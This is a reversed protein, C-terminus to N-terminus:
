KGHVHQWPWPEPLWVIAHHWCSSLFLGATSSVQKFAISGNKEVDLLGFIDESLNCVKLRLVGNLGTWKLWIVGPGKVQQLEAAKMLLMIDGYSHSTQVVNLASAMARGIKIEKGCEKKISTLIQQCIDCVVITAIEKPAPIGKRGIWQYYGFSFLILRACFGTVRMIRSRWKPMPNQKDKWGELAIRTAVYGVALCAGFLVLSAVVRGVRSFRM